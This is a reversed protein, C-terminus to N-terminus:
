SISVSRKIAEVAEDVTAVCMILGTDTELQSGLHAVLDRWTPGVTIIPKPMGGSFRAVFALNWAVALEAMTGLSGPLIVAGASADTLGQLREVLHAAPREETVFANAGDRDRFVTPATVAVVRGGAQKAGKSAAEMLGGYGGTIVGYGAEALLRGCRVGSEYIGDGPISRSAGFVAITPNTM